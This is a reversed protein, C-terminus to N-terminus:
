GFDVRDGLVRELRERDDPHVDNGAVDLRELHSLEDARRALERMGAADLGCRLHLAVLERLWPWRLLARVSEEGARESHTRLCLERLRPLGDARLVELPAFSSGGVLELRELSPLAAGGLEQLHSETYGDIQLIRLRPLDMTGLVDPADDIYLAEVHQWWRHLSSFDITRAFEPLVGVGFRLTRVTEPIGVEAMAGIVDTAQRADLWSSPPPRDAVNLDLYRLFRAAPARRLARVAEAGYPTSIAVSRLFGCHWEFPWEEEFEALEGLWRERNEVFLEKERAVLRARVSDDREEARRAQVVILEGLPDGRAQLWDAYVLYAAPDDPDAEIAAEIEPPVVLSSEVTM